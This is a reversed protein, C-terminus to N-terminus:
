KFMKKHEEIFEKDENNNEIRTKFWTNTDSKGSRSFVGNGIGSNFEVSPITFIM